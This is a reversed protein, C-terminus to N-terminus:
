AGDWNFFVKVYNRVCSFIAYCLYLGNIYVLDSRKQSFFIILKKRIM